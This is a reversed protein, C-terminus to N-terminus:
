TRVMKHFNTSGWGFDSTPLGSQMSFTPIERELLWDLLKDDMAGVVFNECGVKRLNYVWTNVFDRYHWNAWTVLLYNDRLLPEVLERTYVFPHMCHGVLQVSRVAFVYHVLGACFERIMLMQKVCKSLAYKGDAKSEGTDADSLLKTEPVSHRQDGAGDVASLATITSCPGVM